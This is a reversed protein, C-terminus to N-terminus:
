LAPFSIGDLSLWSANGSLITVVGTSQIDVRALANASITVFMHAQLIPRYGVPLTFMTEGSVIASTKEILGRLYVIGNIRRFSPSFYFTSTGGPYPRFGTGFPIEGSAGVIHWRDTGGRELDAIRQELDRIRSELRLNPITVDVANNPLRSM